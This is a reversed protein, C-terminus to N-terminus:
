SPPQLSQVDHVVHETVHPVPVRLRKRIHVLGLGSWPPRKQGPELRCHALQSTVHGPLSRSWEVAGGEVGRQVGEGGVGLVPFGLDVGRAATEEGLRLQSGFGLSSSSSAKIL